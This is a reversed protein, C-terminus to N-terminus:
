ANQGSLGPAALTIITAFRVDESTVLTQFAIRPVDLWTVTVCFEESIVNERGCLIWVPAEGVKVPSVSLPRVAEWTTTLLPLLASVESAYALVFVVSVMTCRSPVDIFALRVPFTVPLTVPFTVPLQEPEEPEQVPLEAVDEEQVPLAAVEDEQVPLEAVAVVAV